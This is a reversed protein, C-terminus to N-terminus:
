KNKRSRLLNKSCTWGEHLQCNLLSIKVIIKQSNMTTKETNTTTKQANMTAKESNMTTKEINM